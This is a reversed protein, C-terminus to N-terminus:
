ANSAKGDMNADVPRSKTKVVPVVGRSRRRERWAAVRFVTAKKGRKSERPGLRVQWPVAELSVTAVARM